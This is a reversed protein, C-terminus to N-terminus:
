FQVGVQALVRTDDNYDETADHNGLTRAVQVGAFAIGYSLYYGLGIDSIAIPDTGIDPQNEPSVRGYDTFLGVSQVLGAIPALAYKLELGALYGNDGTVGDPYAKIGSTGSASFQEVGDLNKGLSEQVGLRATLSWHADFALNGVASLNLKSFAGQTDAGARDFARQEADDFRLRGHSLSGELRTYLPLGFLTGFRENRLALTAVDDRKAVSSDLVEIDDRLHKSALNLSLYLSDERTRKLPYSFTAEYITATGTADLDAYEEGLSYITRTAALEARLGDSGLPASYALRGNQLGAGKTTMAALSLKDGLGLPSNFDLGASLRDKGTFRSGYNDAMAYGNITAEAPTDVLFDSSGPAQGPSISLLPLGAGPLDSALLMARELDDRHVAEGGQALRDFTKQLQADGVRSANNLTFRGYHGPVVRVLLTGDSADQKPVYAHAVLLGQARYLLTIRSAAEDIEAMSLARNRYPALTSELEAPLPEPGEVRFARVFLTEGGPLALPAEQQQIIVPAPAKPQRPEPTPPALTGKVADGIDYGAAHALPAALSLALTLVRLPFPSKQVQYM